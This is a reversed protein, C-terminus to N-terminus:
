VLKYINKRVIIEIELFVCKPTRMGSQVLDLGTCLIYLNEKLCVKRGRHSFQNDQIDVIILEVTTEM